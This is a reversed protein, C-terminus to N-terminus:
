CISVRYGAVVESAVGVEGGFSFAETCDGSSPCVSFGVSGAFDLGLSSGVGSFGDVSFTTGEGCGLSLGLGVV